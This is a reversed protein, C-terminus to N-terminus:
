RNDSERLRRELKGVLWTFFMVVVLYILAVAILPMFASYTVGRIRNGAYTLDQVAVYAAVSTEKLLVIFENALPPLVNKFVQPTIIYWMSQVYNFGLSRGAEMQGKDISMIGSRIIESVYAASNLGFSLTAVMIGNRSTAFVIYFMITLQVVVPTGRIVTTYVKCIANLIMMLYYTMGHYRSKSTNTDWTARIAAVVVGLVTGILCALFAILMTNGLGNALMKWRDGKVFNLIFDATLNDWNTYLWVVCYCVLAIGLLAMIALMIMTKLDHQTGTNNSRDDPQHRLLNM